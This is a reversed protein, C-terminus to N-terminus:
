SASTNLNACNAIRAGQDISSCRPSSLKREAWEKLDHILYVARNGFRRYAPGGGVTVWKQLTNKTVKLGLDETLYRAAEERNLFKNEM